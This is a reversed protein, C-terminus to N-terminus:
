QPAGSPNGSDPTMRAAHDYRDGMFRLRDRHNGDQEQIVYYVSPAATEGPVGVERLAKFVNRDAGLAYAGLPVSWCRLVAECGLKDILLCNPDVWGGFNSAFVGRGPGVSEWDDVCIVRRSHPHVFWRLSFAWLRGQVADVLRRLHNPAWVNDDDLYAVHRANALYSLTTRLSGGDTTPHVGGHRVSTSYGPYFLCPTVHEPPADLLSMLPELSGLPSDVGILLQIRALGEQAYVSRVADLIAARGVTPMVVAVEFPPQQDRAPGFVRWQPTLPTMNSSM